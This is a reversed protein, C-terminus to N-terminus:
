FFRGPSIRFCPHTLPAVIQARRVYDLHLIQRFFPAQQPGFLTADDHFLFCSAMGFAAQDRFNTKKLEISRRACIRM